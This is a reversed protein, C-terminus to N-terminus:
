ANVRRLDRWSRGLRVAILLTGVALIVRLSPSIRFSFGRLVVTDILFALVVIGERISTHWAENAKRQRVQLVTLPETLNRAFRLQRWAQFTQETACAILIVWFPAINQVAGVGIRDSFYFMVPCAVALFACRWLQQRWARMAALQAEAIEM